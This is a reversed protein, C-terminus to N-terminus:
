TCKGDAKCKSLKYGVEDTATKSTTDMDDQYKQFATKFQEIAKNFEDVSMGVKVNLTPIATNKLYNLFDQQHCNEHFGLSVNGSTKDAKTTGRGYLSKDTAKAKTGYKTQVTITGKLTFKGTLKTIVKKGGQQQYEYSPANWKIATFSYSTKAANANLSSDTGDAVVQVKLDIDKDATTETKVPSTTANTKPPAKAKVAQGGAPAATNAQTVVVQAVVLLEAAPGKRQGPSLSPLGDETLSYPQRFYGPGPESAPADIDIAPTVDSKQPASKGM